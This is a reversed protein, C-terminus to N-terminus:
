IVLHNSLLPMRKLVLKCISFHYTDVFEWSCVPAIEDQIDPYVPLFLWGRSQDTSLGQSLLDILHM